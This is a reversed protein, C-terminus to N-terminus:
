TLRTKLKKLKKIKKAQHLNKMNKKLKKFKSRAFLSYIKFSNFSKTEVTMVWSFQFCILYKQILSKSAATSLLNNILEKSKRCKKKLKKIMQNKQFFNSLLFTKMLFYNKLLKKWLSLRIWANIKKLKNLLVKKSSLLWIKLLSIVLKKNLNKKMMLLLTEARPKLHYIQSPKLLNPLKKDTMMM